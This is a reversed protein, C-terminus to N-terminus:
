EAVPAKIGTAPAGPGAPTIFYGAFLASYGLVLLILGVAGCLYGFRRQSRASITLGWTIAATWLGNAFHYCSALIGIPYVVWTIWPVAIM